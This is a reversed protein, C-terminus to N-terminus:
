NVSEYMFTFTGWTFGTNVEDQVHKVGELRHGARLVDPM